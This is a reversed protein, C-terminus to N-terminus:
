AIDEVRFNTFIITHSKEIHYIYRLCITISKYGFLMNIGDAPMKFLILIKFINQDFM